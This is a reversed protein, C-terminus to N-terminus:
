LHVDRDRLNAWRQAYGAFVADNLLPAPKTQNMGKNQPEEMRWVMRGALCPVM